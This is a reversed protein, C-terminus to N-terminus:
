GAGDLEGALYRQRADIRKVKGTDTSRIFRPPALGVVNVPLDADALSRRVDQTLAARRAPDKIRPRWSCSSRSSPATRALCPSRWRAVM